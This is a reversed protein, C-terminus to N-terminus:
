RRGPAVPKRRTSSSSSQNRRGPAVVQQKRQNRPVEMMRRQHAPAPTPNDNFLEDDNVDDLRPVIRRPQQSNRGHMDDNRAQMRPQGSQTNRAGVSQRRNQQRQQQEPNIGNVGSANGLRRRPLGGGPGRQLRGGAQNGHPMSNGDGRNNNNANRNVHNSPNQRRINSNHPAPIQDDNFLSDDMNSVINNENIKQRNGNKSNRPQYANGNNGNNADFGGRVAPMRVKGSSEMMQSGDNFLSDSDDNNDNTANMFDANRIDAPATYSPNDNFLSTSGGLVPSVYPLSAEPANNSQNSVRAKPPQNRNSRNNNMDQEANAAAQEAMSTNFLNDTSLMNSASNGNTADDPLGTEPAQDDFQMIPANPDFYDDAIIVSPPIMWVKHAVAGKVDSDVEDSSAKKIVIAESKFGNEKRPASLHQFESPEVIYKEVQATMVNSNRNNGFNIEFMGQQNRRQITYSNTWHKGLIQSMIQATAENAGAHFIFNGCTDLLANIFASSGSSATVQDLSQFALTIGIKASRAKELMSKVSTPPLSQFEDVYISVPNTQGSIARMATMNTLDTCIMSGVMAGIDTSKTASISFLVVNNPESALKFIDIIKRDTGGGPYIMYKGDSSMLGRMFGKYEGMANQVGQAERQRNTAHILTELEDALLRTNSSAPVTNIASTLNNENRILEYFTYMNGRTFDIGRLSSDNKDMEDMIAFVTSLMSQANSKYVASAADWERTSILMDTHEAARGHSLPDYFAPGSPNQTIRYENGMTPAFHYFNAGMEDCWAAMKSAFVPDAKCDIIFVTQHQQMKHYIDNQMTITNHTPIFSESCLFLHNPSDVTLCYYDENVDDHKPIISTIYRQTRRIGGDHDHLCAELRDAKHKVNFVQKDPHFSFRYAKMCIIRSGDNTYSCERTTIRTPIWGLSCVIARMKSVISENTMCVEVRGHKDVYGDTDLLGSLLRIRQNVSSMIYADPIDKILKSAGSNSHTVALGSEHFLDHKLNNFRWNHLDHHRNVGDAEIINDNILEYGDKIINERVEDDIGCIVGTHASGDGLWAGMTYPKVTLEDNYDYQVADTATISYLTKRSHMMNEYMTRTNIVETQLMNTKMRTNMRKSYSSIENIRARRMAENQVLANYYEYENYGSYTRDHIYRTLEIILRSNNNMAHMLDDHNVYHNDIIDAENNIFRLINKKDSDTIKRTKQIKDILENIDYLPKHYVLGSLAQNYAALSKSKIWSGHKEVAQETTILNDTNANISALIGKLKDFYSDSYMSILARGTLRRKGVLNVQWLHDGGANIVTGDSFVVEYHDPTNPHYKALVKTRMGHEDFLIDGPQIDRMLKFGSITPIMTDWRLEKGSGSAGTLITHTFAESDYKGIPTDYRIYAPDDPPTIPEEEIGIPYGGKLKLSDDKIQKILMIRALLQKPTHRYRWHYYKEGKTAVLYPNNHIKSRTVWCCISGAIFGIGIGLWILGSTGSLWLMIRTKIDGTGPMIIKRILEPMSNLKFTLSFLLFSLLAAIISGVTIVSARVHIWRFIAWVGWAILLGVIIPIPMLIFLVCCAIIGITKISVENGGGGKGNFLEDENETTSPDDHIKAM